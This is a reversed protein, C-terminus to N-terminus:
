LVKCSGLFPEESEWVVRGSKSADKWVEGDVTGREVALINIFLYAFKAVPIASQSINSYLM